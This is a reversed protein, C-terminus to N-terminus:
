AFVVWTKPYYMIYWSQFMHIKEPPIDYLIAKRQTLDGIGADDYSKTVTSGTEYAERCIELWRELTVDQPAVFVVRAYDIRPRGRAVIQTMTVTRGYQILVGNEPGHPNDAQYNVVCDNTATVNISPM